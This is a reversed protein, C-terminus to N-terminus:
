GDTEAGKQSLGLSESIYDAIDQINSEQYYHAPIVANITMEFFSPFSKRYWVRTIALLIQRL